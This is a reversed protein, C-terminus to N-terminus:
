QNYPEDDYADHIGGRQVHAPGAFSELSLNKDDNRCIVCTPASGTYNRCQNVDFKRFCDICWIEVLGMWKIINFDKEDVRNARALLRKFMGLFLQYIGSSADHLTNLHNKQDLMVRQMMQIDHQLKAILDDKQRAFKELTEVRNTLVAITDFLYQIEPNDSKKQEIPKAVAIRRSPTSTKSSSKSM